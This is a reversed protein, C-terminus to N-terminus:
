AMCSQAAVLFLGVISAGFKAAFIQLVGSLMSKNENQSFGICYM